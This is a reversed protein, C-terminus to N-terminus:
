RFTQTAADFTLSAGDAASLLLEQGTAGVVRVDGDKRPTLFLGGSLWQAHTGDWIAVVVIGQQPDSRLGGAYVEIIRTSTQEVWDNSIVEDRTGPIGLPSDIIEGAGAPHPIFPSVAHPPNTPVPVLTAAVGKAAAHMAGASALAAYAEEVRVKAPPLAQATSSGGQGVGPGRSTATAVAGSAVLAAIGVLAVALRRHRRTGSPLDRPDPGPQRTSM